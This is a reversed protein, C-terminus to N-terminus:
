AAAADIVVSLSRATQPSQGNEQAYLTKAAAEELGSRANCKPGQSFVATAARGGAGIGGM